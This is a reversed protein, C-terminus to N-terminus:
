CFSVVNPIAKLISYFAPITELSKGCGVIVVKHKARTIAVNLRRNERLLESRRAGSDTWTTSWVIVSKDRGQFQDITNVELQSLESFERIVDIQRRYACMVGIESPPVGARLFDRCIAAVIRAEGPNTVGGSTPQCQMQPDSNARTDVFVCSRELSGDLVAKMEDSCDPPIVYGGNRDLCGRAVKETGCVLKGEYFLESSIKAITRNMRYQSSLSVVAHKHQQLRQMLSTGAGEMKASKSQVLPALQHCDGVFVFRNAASLPPLLVPELVMSAEDVICVDFRRWSFLLERVVHHCTCAVVPTKKLINRMFEYRNKDVIDKMKTELAMPLVDDRIAHSKGLRVAFDSNVNKALKALVNDIASHTFASLLVSQGMAALCQVLVAIVTSKGSGPFGEIIFYDNSILAYLVAKRQETNLNAKVIIKRVEPSPEMTVMLPEPSALDVVFNRLRTSNSDTGMLYLLSGLTTSYTSFSNHRDLHFIEGTKRISRDCRIVLGFELIEVVFGMVLGYKKGTSVNCMDGVNLVNEPLPEVRELTVKFGGQVPVEFFVSLNSICTRSAEREEPSALWIQPLSAGNVKKEEAWEAFLIKIWRCCYEQQKTSLHSLQALAFSKMLESSKAFDETKSQFFSCMVNQECKECFKPDRRPEPLSRWDANGIYKALTNRTQLVGKLELARPVVPRGVGDKLYLLNGQLLEQNYRSSLMLSYLFVQASHDASAGSKGTKLEISEISDKGFKNRTKVTVDVKGKVGILPDWITEEIDEVETVSSGSPLEKPTYGSRPIHANIWTVIMELYPQLENEFSTPTFHLAILEETCNPWLKHRWVDLLWERTVLNVTEQVGLQFLEHVITGLLMAKNGECGFRFRENLVVKRSCWSSSAVSTCPILTDPNVIVIGKESTVMFDMEGWPEADIIRIVDGKGVETESWQDQLYVMSISGDAECELDLCGDRYNAHNVTFRRMNKENRVDPFGQVGSEQSIKEEIQSAVDDEGFPDTTCIPSSRTKSKAGSNYTIPADFSDFSDKMPSSDWDSLVENKPPSLVTKTYKSRKRDTEVEDDIVNLSRKRHEEFPTKARSKELVLKVPSNNEDSM